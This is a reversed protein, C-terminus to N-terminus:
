FPKDGMMHSRMQVNGTCVVLKRIKKAGLAYDPNIYSQPRQVFVKEEFVANVTYEYSRKDHTLKSM